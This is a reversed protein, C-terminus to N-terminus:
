ASCSKIWSPVRLYIYEFRSCYACSFHSTILTNNELQRCPCCYLKARVTICTRLPACKNKPARMRSASRSSLLTPEKSSRARLAFNRWRPLRSQYMKVLRAGALSCSRSLIYEGARSTASSKLSILHLQQSCALACENGDAPTLGIDAAADAIRRAPLRRPTCSVVKQIAMFSATPTVSKEGVKERSFSYVRIADKKPLSHTHINNQSQCEISIQLCTYSGKPGSLSYVLNLGKM